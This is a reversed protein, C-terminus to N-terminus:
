QLFLSFQQLLRWQAETKKYLKNQRQLMIVCSCQNMIGARSEILALSTPTFNLTAGSLWDHNFKFNFM